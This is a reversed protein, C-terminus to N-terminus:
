ADLRLHLGALGFLDGLGRLLLFRRLAGLDDVQHREELLADFAGAALRGLLFVFRLARVALAARCLLLWHTGALDAAVAVVLRETHGARAAVVVDEVAELARDLLERRCAGM